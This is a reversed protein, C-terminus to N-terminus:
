LEWKILDSARKQGRHDGANMHVYGSESMCQSGVARRTTLGHPMEGMQVSMDVQTTM